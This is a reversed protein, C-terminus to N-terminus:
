ITRRKGISTAYPDAKGLLYAFIRPRFLKILPKNLREWISLPQRANRMTFLLYVLSILTVLIVGVIFRTFITWELELAVRVLHVTAEMHGYLAATFPSAAAEAPTTPKSM